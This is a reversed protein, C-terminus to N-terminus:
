GGAPSLFSPELLNWVRPGKLLQRLEAGVSAADVDGIALLTSDDIGHLGLLALSRARTALAAPVVRLAELQLAAFPPAQFEARVVALAASMEKPDATLACAAVLEELERRPLDSGADAVGRRALLVLPDGLLPEHQVFPARAMSENGRPSSFRVRARIRLIEIALLRALSVPGDPAVAACGVYAADIRTHKHVALALGEVNRLPLTAAVGVNARPITRLVPELAAGSPLEGVVAVTLGGAPAVSLARAFQEPTVELLSAADGLAATRRSDGDAFLARRALGQLVEGPYLWDADDSALAALAISRASVDADDRASFPGCLAQLWRPALAADPGQLFVSFVCFGEALERQTRVREPLTRDAIAARHVSAAHALARSAGADGEISWPFVVSIGCGGAPAEVVRLRHGAVETWPSSPAAVPAQASAAVSAALVTLRVCAKWMSAM